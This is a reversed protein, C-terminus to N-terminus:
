KQSVAESVSMYKEYKRDYHWNVQNAIFHENQNGKNNVKTSEM